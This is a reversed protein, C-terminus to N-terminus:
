FWMEQIWFLFNYLMTM